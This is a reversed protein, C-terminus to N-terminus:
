NFYVPFHRAIYRDANRMNEKNTCYDDETPANEDDDFEGRDNMDQYQNALYEQIKEERFDEPLDHWDLSFHYNMPNHPFSTIIKM